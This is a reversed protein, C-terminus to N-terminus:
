APTVYKYVINSPHGAADATQITVTGNDNVQLTVTLSFAGTSATTRTQGNIQQQPATFNVTLGAPAEDQVTGSITVGGGPGYGVVVNTITPPNDTSGDYIYQPWDGVIHYADGDPCIRADLSELALRARRPTAPWSPRRFLNFLKM